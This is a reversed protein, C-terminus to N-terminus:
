ITSTLVTAHVLLNKANFFHRMDSDSVSVNKIEFYVNTALIVTDLHSDYINLIDLDILEVESLKFLDGSTSFVDMFQVFANNAFLDFCTNCTVNSITVENLEILSNVSEILSQCTISQFLNNQLLLNSNSVYIVSNTSYLDVLFLDTVIVESSESLLLQNFSIGTLFSFNNLEFLM